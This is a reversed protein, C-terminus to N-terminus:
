ADACRDLRDCSGIKGSRGLPWAVRHQRGYLIWLNHERRPFFPHSREGVFHLRVSGCSLDLWAQMLACSIMATHLAPIARRIVATPHATKRRQTIPFVSCERWYVDVAVSQTNMLMNRRSGETLYCYLVEHDKNYM